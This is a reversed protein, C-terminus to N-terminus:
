ALVLETLRSALASRGAGLASHYIRERETVDALSKGALFASLATATALSDLLILSKVYVLGGGTGLSLGTLNASACSATSETM